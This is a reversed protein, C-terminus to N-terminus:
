AHANLKRLISHPKIHLVDDVKLMSLVDRTQSEKRNYLCYVAPTSKFQGDYITDITIGQPELVLQEALTRLKLLPVVLFTDKLEFAVYDANGYLWGKSGKVNIFEIWVIDPNVSPDSSSVRKMSKIEVTFPTTLGPSPSPHDFKYDWHQNFDENLSAKTYSYGKSSMISLFHKEALTGRKTRNGMGYMSKNYPTFQKNLPM